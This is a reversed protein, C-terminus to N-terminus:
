VIHPLECSSNSLMYISKINPVQITNTGFIQGNSPDYDSTLCLLDKSLGVFMGVTKATVYVNEKPIASKLDIWGVGRNQEADVWNVFVIDLPQLDKLFKKVEKKNM